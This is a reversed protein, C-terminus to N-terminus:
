NVSIVANKCEPCLFNFEGDALTEILSRVIQMCQLLNISGYKCTEKLEKKLLIGPGYVLNRYLHICKNVIILNILILFAM